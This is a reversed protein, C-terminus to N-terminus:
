VGDVYLSLRRLRSFTPNAQQPAFAIVADFVNSSGRDDAVIFRPVVMTPAIPFYFSMDGEPTCLVRLTADGICFSPGTDTYGEVRQSVGDRKVMTLYFEKKYMPAGALSYDEAVDYNVGNFRCEFDVGDKQAYLVASVHRIRDLIDRSGTYGEFGFLDETSTPVYSEKSFNIVSPALSVKKMYQNEAETKNLYTEHIVAGNKDQTAQTAVNSHNAWEVTGNKKLSTEHIVEGNKDTTAKGAETAYLAKAAGDAEIAKAVTVAGSKLDDVAENFGALADEYKTYGLSSPQAGALKPRVRAIIPMTITYVTAGSLYVWATIPSTQELYKDPIAVTFEGDVDVCTRVEAEEMGACAFHVEVAGAIDEAQIELERGFDWQYLGNVTVHTQGPLFVARLSM